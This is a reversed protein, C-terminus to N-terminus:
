ICVSLSATFFAPPLAKCAQMKLYYGMKAVFRLQFRTSWTTPKSNRRLNDIIQLLEPGFSPLFGM